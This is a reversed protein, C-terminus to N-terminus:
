RDNYNGETEASKRLARIKEYIGRERFYAKEMISEAQETLAAIAAAYHNVEPVEVEIFKVGLLPWGFEAMSATSVLAEGTSTEHIFLEVKITKLKKGRSQQLEGSKQISASLSVSYVYVM